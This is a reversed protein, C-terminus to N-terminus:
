AIPKPLIKAMAQGGRLSTLVGPKKFEVWVSASNDQYQFAEEFGVYGAWGKVLLGPTYCAIGQEVMQMAQYRDCDNFTMALVGGPKLKTYLESLYKTIIEYPRYNLYNYVLCFGFQEDPLKDLIPNDFSEEIHHVRLRNKYVDNWQALAPELLYHSEDVLYLPDNSVMDQIFSEAMPHIIMAPYHWDAHYSVRTKLMTATEEDLRVPKNRHLNVADPQQADRTELQREYATSSAQLWKVGEAEILQKVSTKFKVLENELNDFSSQISQNLQCLNERVSIDVEANPVDSEHMIHNFRGQTEQQLDKMTLDELRNSLRILEALNM